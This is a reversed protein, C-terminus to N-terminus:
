QSYIGTGQLSTDLNALPMLVTFTAGHDPNRAARISGKHRETIKRCIALGVGTGEYDNKGHLRQFVSFIREAHKEDFGIGNDIVKIEVMRKKDVDIYSAMVQIHPTTDPRIFKLANGILNQFLQRMQLPDAAIDPLDNVEISAGTQEIRIELDSLVEAVITNMDTLIFDNSTTMVRSLALLDHILTQMRAAANQMRRLYDLGQEDLTDNYKAEIRNGFTQIKRLPEQLDHSAVYAFDQLERNSRELETAYSALEARALQREMTVNVWQAVLRVYDMESISFTTPRAKESLFSLTGYIAGNLMIPAGIYSGPVIEGFCPPATALTDGVKSLAYVDQERITNHCLTAGLDCTMGPQVDHSTSYVHIITYIGNQVQSIIGTQMDLAVVGQEVVDRLQEVTDGKRTAIGLLSGLRRQNAHLETNVVELSSAYSKLQDEYRKQESIDAEIAIFRTLLGADDYTPQADISVWYANGLKDYNIIEASFGAGQRIQQRMYDVIIADSGQGQLLSGPTHGKCELLTYGTRKTFAKNVWEIRGAADCIIVMNSTRSAVQSLKEMEENLKTLHLTTAQRERDFRIYTLFMIAVFILYFTIALGLGLLSARSEHLFGLAADQVRGAQTRRNIEGQSVLENFGLELEQMIAIAETRLATDDDNPSVMIEVLIPEVETHWREALDRAILLLDETGLTRLQYSLTAENLRQVTLARHLDLQEADDEGDTLLVQLRLIERQVQSLTRVNAEIIDEVVGLNSELTNVQSLTSVVVFGIIGLLLLSIVLLVIGTLRFFANSLIGRRM